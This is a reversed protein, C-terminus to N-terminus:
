AAIPEGAMVSRIIEAYYEIRGPRFAVSHRLGNAPGEIPFNEIRSDPPRGSYGTKGMNGFVHGPLISGATLAFDRADHFNVLRKFGEPPWPYNDEIAGNFLFVNEFHVGPEFMSRFTVVSGFSHAIVSLRTLVQRNLQLARNALMRGHRLQFKRFGAMIPGTWPYRFDVVAFHDHLLPRFRDVSQKGDSLIGNVLLIATDNRSANM